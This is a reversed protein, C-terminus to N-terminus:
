VLREILVLGEFDETITVTYTSEIIRRPKETDRKSKYFITLRSEKEDYSYNLYDTITVSNHTSIYQYFKELADDLTKHFVNYIHWNNNFEVRIM